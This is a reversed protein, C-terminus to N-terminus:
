RDFKDPVISALFRRGIEDLTALKGLVTTDKDAAFVCEVDWMVPSVSFEQGTGLCLIELLNFLHQCLGAVEVAMMVLLPNVGTFAPFWSKGIEVIRTGHGFCDQQTINCKTGSFCDVPIGPVHPDGVHGFCVPVNLVAVACTPRQSLCGSLTIPEVCSGFWCNELFGPAEKGAVAGCLSGVTEIAATM